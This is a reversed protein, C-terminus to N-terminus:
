KDNLLEPNQYINGIIEHDSINDDRTHYSFLQLAQAHYNSYHWGGYIFYVENVDAQGNSVIDGEYIEKRNKDKLGIYQMVIWRKPYAQYGIPNVVDEEMIKSEKDWARFKIERM